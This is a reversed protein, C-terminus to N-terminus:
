EPYQAIHPKIAKGLWDIARGLHRMNILGEEDAAVEGKDRGFGMNWYTSGPIIMRSMQYMHNITDFANIAGGRRLAVVAAGIKGTFANGNARAVYGSRELLAKMDAAVGAFYTPSGLVIADAKTMKAFVENFVDNKIACEMDKKELCVGCAICGRIGTGGVPLLDTEWGAKKLESLVENLLIETNGGKRASGNVAVAYM